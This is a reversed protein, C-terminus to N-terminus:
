IEDLIKTVQSKSLPKKLYHIAGLALCEDKVKDDYVSTEMITKINLNKEKVAKLVTIGDKKPMKIDLFMIEPKIEDIKNLADEGDVAEYVQFKKPDIYGKLTGRMMTSDEVILVKRQDTTQIKTKDISLDSEDIVSGLDILILLKDKLVGVGQLFENNIKKTIMQPAEEIKDGTMRIVENCSDVIFGVTGSNMETIIIRKSDTDDTSKLELKEALDIVVVIKDRLNIIGKVYKPTDPIVTLTDIKIIERVDSIDVGFSEEGIKFVVLQREFFRMEDGKDVM